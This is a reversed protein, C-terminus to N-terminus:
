KEFTINSTVDDFKFFFCCINMSTKVPQLCLLGKSPGKVAKELITLLNSCIKEQLFAGASQRGGPCCM